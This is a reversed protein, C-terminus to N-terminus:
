EARRYGPRRAVAAIGGAVTMAQSAAYSVPLLALIVLAWIPSVYADVFAADYVILWLLGAIWLERGSQRYSRNRRFILITLVLFGLFALVPFILRPTWRAMQFLSEGRDAYWFYYLAILIADIVALGGLVTARHGRTMRPRKQEWIYALASILTLHNMLLLPHWIVPLAPSAIAAHCFRVLGLTLLGPAVLYRAAFDYLTILGATWVILLITAADNTMLSYIAGALLAAGMLAACLAHGSRVGIIGAAIPRHAALQQDRRRDILDNLSLGFGYLSASIIAMVIMAPALQRIARLNVQPQARLLITTWGDAIATFVLATRNFEWDSRSRRSIM